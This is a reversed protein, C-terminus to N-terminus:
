KKPQILRFVFVSLLLYGFATGYPLFRFIRFLERNIEPSQNAPALWAILFPGFMSVSFGLASALPLVGFWSKNKVYYWAAIVIFVLLMAIQVYNTSFVMTHANNM